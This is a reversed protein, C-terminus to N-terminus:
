CCGKSCRSEKEYIYMVNEAACVTIDEVEYVKRYRCMSDVSQFYRHRARVKKEWRTRSPVLGM